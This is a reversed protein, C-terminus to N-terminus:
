TKFYPHNPYLKKFLVCTSWKSCKGDRLNDILYPIAYDPDLAETPTVDPNFHSNIQALGLSPKALSIDGKACNDYGSENRVIFDVMGEYAGMEQSYYHIKDAILAKSLAVCALIELM